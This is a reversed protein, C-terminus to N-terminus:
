KQAIIITKRAAFHRGGVEFYMPLIEGSPEQGPLLQVEENGNWAHLRVNKEMLGPSRRFTEEWFASASMRNPVPRGGDDSKVPVYYATRGIWTFLVDSLSNADIPSPFNEALKLIKQVQSHLTTRQLRNFRDGLDPTASLLRTLNIGFLNNGYRETKTVKWGEAERQRIWASLNEAPLKQEWVSSLSVENTMM